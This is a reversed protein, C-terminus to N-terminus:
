YGEEKLMKRIEEMSLKEEKIPTSNSLKHVNKLLYDAQEQTLQVTM